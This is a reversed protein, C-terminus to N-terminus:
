VKAVVYRPRFDLKFQLKDDVVVCRSVLHPVDTLPGNFITLSSLKSDICLSSLWAINAPGAADRADLKVANGEVTIGDEVGWTFDPKPALDPIAAVIDTVSEIQSAELKAIADAAADYLKTTSHIRTNKPVVFAAVAHFTFFLRFLM